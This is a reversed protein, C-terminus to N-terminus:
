RTTGKKEIRLMVTLNEAASKMFGDLTRRDLGPVRRDELVSFAQRMVLLRLNEVDARSLVIGRALDLRDSMDISRLAEGAEAALADSAPKVAYAVELRPGGEFGAALRDQLAAVDNLIRVQQFLYGAVMATVVFASAYRMSPFDFMTLLRDLWDGLFSHREAGPAGSLRASLADLADQLDPSVPTFARLDKITSGAREIRRNLEACRACTQLHREVALDEEPSREGPRYLHLLEEYQACTM